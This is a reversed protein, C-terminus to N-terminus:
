RSLCEKGKLHVNFDRTTGCGFSLGIITSDEYPSQVLEVEFGPISSFRPFFKGTGTAYKMSRNLTIILFGRQLNKGSEITEQTIEIAPKDDFDQQQSDLSIKIIENIVEESVNTKAVRASEQIFKDVTYM